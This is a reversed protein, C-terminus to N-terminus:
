KSIIQHTSCIKYCFQVSKSINESKTTDLLFLQVNQENNQGVDIM